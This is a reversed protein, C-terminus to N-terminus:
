RRRLPDHRRKLRRTDERTEPKAVIIVTKGILSSGDGYWKRIGSVVTREKQGDFLTLHLLKDSGKLPECSLIKATRLEMKM